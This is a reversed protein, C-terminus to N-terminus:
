TMGSREPPWRMAGHVVRLVIVRPPGTGAPYEEVTYVLLYPLPTLVLERTGAVRGRRGRYPMEALARAAAIIRDALREAAVQDDSGVWTLIGALDKRAPGSWGPQETM